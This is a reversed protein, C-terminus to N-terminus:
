CGHATGRKPISPSLTMYEGTIGKVLHRHHGDCEYIVDFGNPSHRSLKGKCVPCDNHHKKWPAASTYGEWGDAFKVLARWSNFTTSWSWGYVTVPKVYGYGQNSQFFEADPIKGYSEKMLSDAGVPYGDPARQYLICM